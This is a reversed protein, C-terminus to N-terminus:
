RFYLFKSQNCKLVTILNYMFLYLVKTKRVYVIYQYLIGSGVLIIDEAMNIKFNSVLHRLVSSFIHRGHFYIQKQGIARSSSGDNM